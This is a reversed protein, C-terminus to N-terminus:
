ALNTNLKEHTKSFSDQPVNWEAQSWNDKLSCVIFKLYQQGMEQKM